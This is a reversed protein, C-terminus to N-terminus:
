SSPTDSVKIKGEVIQQKYAEVWSKTEDDIKGGSTSYGVGDVKLDFVQPLTALDGAAVASVYDFVAVDVRKLMSTIIIDKYEAVVKQNYQDSDVGIAQVDAEKAAAFV